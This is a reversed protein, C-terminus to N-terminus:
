QSRNPWSRPELAKSLAHSIHCLTAFHCLIMFFMLRQFSQFSTVLPRTTQDGTKKPGPGELSNPYYSRHSSQLFRHQGPPLTSSDTEDTEDTEPLDSWRGDPKRTMKQGFHRLDNSSIRFKLVHCTELVKRVAPAAAPVTTNETRIGQTCTPRIVTRFDSNGLEKENKKVLGQNGVKSYM